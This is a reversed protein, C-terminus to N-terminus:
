VRLITPLTLHTYSVATIAIGLSKIAEREGLLAKTLAESAGQSGGSFNTFSALDVALENVQNSLKLAEDETFGFGVLLDGTNALMGLAAESSLGFSDKFTQATKQADGQISSFVTNFKSQTEQLDSASKIAAAGLGVVPLTINRTMSGGIKKMNTGFSKIKRQAGKMAKDFGRLDAGFAVTLFGVSKNAM